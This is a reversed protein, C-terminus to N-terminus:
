KRRENPRQRARRVRGIGLVQQSGGARRKLCLGEGALSFAGWLKDVGVWGRDGDKFGFARRRYVQDVAELFLDDRGLLDDEAEGLGRALRPWRADIQQHGHDRCVGPVARQPDLGHLLVARLLREAEPRSSGAPDHHTEERLRLSRRDGQALEGHHTM